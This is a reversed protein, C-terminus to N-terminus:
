GFGEHYDFYGSSRPLRFHVLLVFKKWYRGQLVQREAFTLTRQYVNFLRPGFIKVSCFPTKKVFFGM